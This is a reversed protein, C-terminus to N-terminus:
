PLPSQTRGYVAKEHGDEKQLVENYCKKRLSCTNWFEPLLDTTTIKHISEEHDDLKGRM